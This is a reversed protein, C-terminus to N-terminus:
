GRLGRQFPGIAEFYRNDRDVIDGSLAVVDVGHAIAYDVIRSWTEKTAM